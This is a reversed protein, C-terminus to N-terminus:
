KLDSVAIGDGKPLPVSSQLTVGPEDMLDALETAVALVASILAYGGANWLRDAFALAGFDDHLEQAAVTLRYYGEKLARTNVNHKGQCLAYADRQERFLGRIGLRDVRYDALANRTRDLQRHLEDRDPIPFKQVMGVLAEKKSSWLTLIPEGSLYEGGDWALLRYWAPTSAPDLNPDFLALWFRDLLKTDGMLKAIDTDSIALLSSQIIAGVRTKAGEILDDLGQAKATQGFLMLFGSFVAVTAVARRLM